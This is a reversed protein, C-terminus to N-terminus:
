LMILFLIPVSVQPSAHYNPLFVVLTQILVSFFLVPERARLAASTVSCSSPNSRCDLPLSSSWTQSPGSPSCLYKIQSAHHSYLYQHSLPPSLSYPSSCAWSSSGLRAYATNATGTSDGLLCRQFSKSVEIFSPQALCGPKPAMLVETIHRCSNEPKGEWCDESMSQYEGAERSNLVPEHSSSPTGTSM